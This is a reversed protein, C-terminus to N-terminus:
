STGWNWTKIPTKNALPYWRFELGPFTLTACTHNFRTSGPNVVLTEGLREAYVQHTHGVILLDQGFGALRQTWEQQLDLDLNGETDLLKIGDLYSQPPSGHVMYLTRNEIAMALTAPLRGLFLHTGPNCQDATNDAHQELHWLDHNGAIAQCDGQLLLEVTQDLEDGYGAIDGACLVTDVGERKVISLAEALPAVTAHVDSVLGIRTRM